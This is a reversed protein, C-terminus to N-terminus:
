TARWRSAGGLEQLREGLQETQGLLAQGEVGVLPVTVGVVAAFQERMQPVVRDAVRDEEGAVDV